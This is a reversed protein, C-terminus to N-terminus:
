PAWEDLTLGFIRPQGDEVVVSVLWMQWDLGGYEPNDGPDLASVFPLGNFESPIVASELRGNPGTQIQNVRHTTDDDLWVSVFPDAVAQRFTEPTIEPSDAGLANSGWRRTADDDIADNVQDKAYHVPPAHHAIWLGDASVLDAVDGDEDLRRAFEDIVDRADTAAEGASTATPTLFDGHAWGLGTPTVLEFWTKGNVTTSAGTAPVSVGPQLRGIPAHDPGAQTRVNLTDDDAVNVVTMWGDEGAERPGIQSQSWVPVVVPEPAPTAASPGPFMSTFDDRTMGDGVEIGEGSFVDVPDGDIALRVRNVPAVATATWTLQALRGLMATAGGGSEFAGSLDITVENPGSSASSASIDLLTVDAPIATTLGAAAEEGSPGDLLAEVADGVQTTVDDRPTSITRPRSVLTDANGGIWFIEVDTAVVDVPTAPAATPTITSAPAPEVSTTAAPDPVATLVPGGTGENSGCAGLVLGASAVVAMAHMFPSRHLTM